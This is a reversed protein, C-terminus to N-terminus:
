LKCLTKKIIVNFDNENYFVVYNSINEYYIKQQNNLRYIIKLTLNKLETNDIIKLFKLFFCSIDGNKWTQKLKEIYKNEVQEKYEYYRHIIMDPSFNKINDRKIIEEIVLREFDQTNGKYIKKLEFLKMGVEEIALSETYQLFELFIETMM